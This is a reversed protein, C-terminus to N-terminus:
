LTVLASHARRLRFRFDFKPPTLWKYLATLKWRQCHQTQTQLTICGYAPLTRRCAPVKDERCLLGVRSPAIRFEQALTKTRVSSYRTRIQKEEETLSLRVRAIDWATAPCFLAMFRCARNKWNDMELTGPVIDGFAVVQYFTRM